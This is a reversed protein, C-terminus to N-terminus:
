LSEIARKLRGPAEGAITVRTAGGAEVINVAITKPASFLGWLGNRRRVFTVGEGTQSDISYGQRRLVPALDALV